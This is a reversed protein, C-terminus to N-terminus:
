VNEKLKISILSGYTGIDFLNALGLPDVWAQMNSTFSYLNEGGFLGMPDQNVCRDAEPEYYGLFNYHLGMEEELGGSFSFGRAHTGRM